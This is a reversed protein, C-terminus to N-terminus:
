KADKTVYRLRPMTGFYGDVIEVTPAFQDIQSVLLKFVQPSGDAQEIMVFLMQSKGIQEKLAIRLAEPEM